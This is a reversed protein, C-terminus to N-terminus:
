NKIELQNTVKGAGAIQQAKAQISDKEAQSSVPGRLTVAGNITIIKINKAATSLADDKVVAQRIKATLEIDPKSNSQDEPTLPGGQVDRQNKASNDAPVPAPDTAAHAAAAALLMMLCLFLLTKIQKWTDETREIKMNM